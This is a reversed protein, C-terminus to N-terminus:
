RTRALKRALYDYSHQWHRPTMIQDHRRARTAAPLLPPALGAARGALHIRAARELFVGVCTLEEVTQGCFVVGHNALFLVPGSGLAAALAEGEAMEVILAALDHLTPIVGFYDADLTYPALAEGAGSLISAHLPHTHAVYRIEPRALLIAAHIPWESHRGGSGASQVGDFGLRVFDEPGAVEDLGIANRKMWFGQGTATRMSLHGLTLDNHGELALINCAEALRRLEQHDDDHM